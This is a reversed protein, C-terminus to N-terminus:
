TCKEGGTPDSAHDDFTFPVIIGKRQIGIDMKKGALLYQLIIVHALVRVSSIDKSSLFAEVSQGSRYESVLEDVKVKMAKYTNWLEQKSETKMRDYVFRMDNETLFSSYLVDRGFFPGINFFILQSIPIHPDM